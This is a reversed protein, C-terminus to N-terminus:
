RKMRGLFRLNYFTEFLEDSQNVNKPVVDGKFKLSCEQYIPSVSFTPSQIIFILHLYNQVINKAKLQIRSKFPEISKEKVQIFNTPREEKPISLIFDSAKMLKFSAILTQGQTIIKNIKLNWRQRQLNSKHIYCPFLQENFTKSLYIYNWFNYTSFIWTNSYALHFIFLNHIRIKEEFYIM